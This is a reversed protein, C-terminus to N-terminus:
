TYLLKKFREVALKIDFQKVWNLEKKKLVELDGANLKLLERVKEVFILLNGERVLYRTFEPPSIEKVGGVEFAAYPVGATMAELLVHPFGEEESPMIFLDAIGFYNQIEGNPVCGLFKVRDQLQYNSILLQINRKEPGDGIIVLVINENRLKNLIEPLYHAGKRKSLRHVFLVVREQNSINLKSKLNERGASEKSFRKADVWNSMIKIKSLPLQYHKAYQNKLGETGTVLFTVSRYILREFKERLFSRGYLWPLGCNWYFTRGRGIKAILSANLASLFSYHIYFDGYGRIRAYLLVLLNELVKLPLFKFKQVYIKGKKLFDPRDGREIILFIDMEQQLNEILGYLYNFHTATAVQYESM